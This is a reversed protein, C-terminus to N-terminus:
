YYLWHIVTVFIIIYSRREAGRWSCWNEPRDFVTKLRCIKQDSTRWGEFNLHNSKLRCFKPPKLLCAEKCFYDSVDISIGNCVNLYLSSFIDADTGRRAKYQLNLQSLRKLTRLMSSPSNKLHHNSNPSRLAKSM